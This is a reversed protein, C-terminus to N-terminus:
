QSRCFELDVVGNRPIFRFLQSKSVLEKITELLRHLGNFTPRIGERAHFCKMGHAIDPAARQRSKWEVDDIFDTFIFQEHEGYRV